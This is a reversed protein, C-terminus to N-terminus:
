KIMEEVMLRRDRQKEDQDEKWSVHDEPLEVACKEGGCMQCVVADDTDEYTCNTCYKM